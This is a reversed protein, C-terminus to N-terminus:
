IYLLVEVLMMVGVASGCITKNCICVCVINELRTGESMLWFLSVVTCIIYSHLLRIHDFNSINIM